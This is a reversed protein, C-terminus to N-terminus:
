SLNKKLMQIARQHRSKVTNLSEGLTDSIENFTMDSTYRLFLVTRYKVDLKEIAKLIKEYENKQDFLEDLLNTEDTISDAIVNEDNDESEFESFLMPKKKKIVNLSKNKTIEFLWTKFRKSKDFKRLNKWMSVFTDQTIDESDGRNQVFSYAFNYVQKIYREVLFVLANEDGSLYIEILQEDSYNTVKYM